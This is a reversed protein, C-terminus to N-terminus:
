IKHRIKNPEFIIKTLEIENKKNIQKSEKGRNINEEKEAKLSQHKVNRKKM